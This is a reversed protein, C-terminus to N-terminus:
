FCAWMFWSLSVLGWRKRRRSNASSPPDTQNDGEQDNPIGSDILSDPAGNEIDNKIITVNIPTQTQNDHMQDSDDAILKDTEGHDFINASVNAHPTTTEKEESPLTGDGVQPTEVEIEGVLLASPAMTTATPSPADTAIDSDPFSPAVTATPKPAETDPVETTSPKPTQTNMRNPDYGGGCACCAENATKGDDGAFAGGYVECNNSEAYFDCGDNDADVWTNPNDSCGPLGTIDVSPSLETTGGGCVCCVANASGYYTAFEDGYYYCNNGQAYWMCGDGVNDKWDPVTDYCADAPPPVPDSLFVDDQAQADVLSGGGCQCCAQTATKGFNRFTMGYEDCRTGVAYWDCIFGDGDYWGLPVDSCEQLLRYHDNQGREALRRRAQAVPVTSWSQALSGDCDNLEVVPLLLGEVVETESPGICQFINDYPRISGDNPSYFVFRNDNPLCDNIILNTGQSTAGGTGVICKTADVASRIYNNSDIWWSQSPSENCENQIIFAGNTTSFSSLDWCDDPTEANQFTWLTVGGLSGGGCFCCAEYATRGTANNAFSGSINCANSKDYWDCSDGDKDVWGVTDTCGGVGTNDTTSGASSSSGGGCVCCADNPTEGTVVNPVGAGYGACVNLTEEFEEYWSCSYGDGDVWGPSDDCPEDPGSGGGGTTGGSAVVCKNDSCVLTGQCADDNGGCGIAGEWCKCDSTCLNADYEALTRPGTLCQYLLRVKLLDQPSAGIRQGIDGTLPGLPTITPITTDVAFAYKGYLMVSGYDFETGLVVSNEVLVFNHVHKESINDFNVLLYDDRDPRVQEHHFALAHLFEHQITGNDLCYFPDFNIEQERGTHIKGLNSHCAREQKVEYLHYPYM